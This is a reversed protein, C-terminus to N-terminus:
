TQEQLKFLVSTTSEDPSVMYFEFRRMFCFIFLSFATARCLDLLTEDETDPNFPLSMIHKHAKLNSNLMTLTVACVFLSTFLRLSFYHAVLALSLSRSQYAM